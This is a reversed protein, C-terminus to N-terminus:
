PRVRIRVGEKGRKINPVFCDSAIGVDKITLNVLEFVCEDGEFRVEMSGFRRYADSLWLYIEAYALNM